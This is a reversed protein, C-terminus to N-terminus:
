LILKNLEMFVTPIKMLDGSFKVLILKKCTIGEMFKAYKERYIYM